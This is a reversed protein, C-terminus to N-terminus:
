VIVKGEKIPTAKRWVLFKEMIDAFAASEKRTLKFGGRLNGNIASVFDSLEYRLGDGLYKTFVKENQTFDEYCLEFETTKEEQLIIFINM